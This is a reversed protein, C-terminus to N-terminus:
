LLRTRNRGEPTIHYAHCLHGAATRIAAFWVQHVDFANTVSMFDGSSMAQYMELSAHNTPDNVVSGPCLAIITNHVWTKFAVASAAANGVVPAVPSGAVALAAHIELDTAFIFALGPYNEGCDLNAVEALWTMQRKNCKKKTFAPLDGILERGLIFSNSIPESLKRKM